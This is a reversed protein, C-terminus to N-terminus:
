GGVGECDAGVRFAMRTVSAQRVGEISTIALIREYNGATWAREPLVNTPPLRMPLTYASEFEVGGEDFVSRSTTSLAETRGTDLNRIMTDIEAVTDRETAARFTYRVAQGPCVIPNDIAPVIAVNVIPPLPENIRQEIRQQIYISSSMFVLACIAFIWTARAIHRNTELQGRRHEEVIEAIGNQAIESLETSPM